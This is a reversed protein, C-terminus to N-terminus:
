VTYRTITPNSPSPTGSYDYSGPIFSGSGTSYVWYGYTPIRYSVSLPRVEEGNNISVVSNEGTTFGWTTGTAPLRTQATTGYPGMLNWGGYYSISPPTNLHGETLRGILDYTQDSTEKSYVWYAHGYDLTDLDHDGATGTYPWTKWDSGSLEPYYGYVYLDDSGFLNNASSDVLMYPVSFLNWGEKITVTTSYFPYTSDAEGDGVNAYGRTGFEFDWDDNSDDDIGNPIRQWTRADTSGDDLLESSSQPILDQVVSASNKLVVVEDIIGLKANFSDEVVYYGKADISVDGFTYMLEEFIEEGSYLKWGTLDQNSEGDNYLEIWQDGSSPDLEVENIIVAASAATTMTM